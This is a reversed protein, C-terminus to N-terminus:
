STRERPFDKVNEEVFQEELSEKCFDESPKMKSIGRQIGVSVIEPSEIFDEMFAMKCKDLTEKLFEEQYKEFFNNLSGKAFDKLFVKLLCLQFEKWFGGSIDELIEGLLQRSIM